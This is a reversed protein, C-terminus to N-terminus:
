RACPQCDKIYLLKGYQSMKRLEQAALWRPDTDTNASAAELAEIIVKIPYGRLVESM